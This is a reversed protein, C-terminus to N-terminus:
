IEKVIEVGTLRALRQLQATHDGYFMVRHLGGTYGEAMKRADAVRTVIKSRCGRPGDINVTAEGTSVLLTSAGRFDAVTVPEREPMRVQVSVGKEDEMHTRLVYPLQKGGLGMLRTAAVCHAHIVENRSTDFTPDSVFGPRGSFPTIYMQTMTSALDSECVGYLGADNLRSFAVCPYAPLDGRRFGGLCDITLANAKEQEMLKLAALYLRTSDQIDKRSPEMVKLAGRAYADAEREVQAGGISDYADKLAKYPTLQITTGFQKTFGAALDGANPGQRMLLVKSHKLHHITKFIPLFPKLDSYDSSAVMDARKKQQIFRAFSMFAWGTIPRSFAVMPIDLKALAQDHPGTNATLDIVLLADAGALQKLVPELDGPSKMTVSGTFKICDPHDRELLALQADITQIEKAYDLNPYPWTQGPNVGTYVKKVEAPGDWPKPTAASRAPFPLAAAGALFAFDRRTLPHSM